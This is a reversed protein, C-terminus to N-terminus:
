TRGRGKRRRRAVIGLAGLGALALAYAQPEPVPATVGLLVNDIEASRNQHGLFSIRVTGDAVLPGLGPVVITSTPVSATIVAPAGGPLLSSFSGGSSFLVDYTLRNGSQTGLKFYDFQFDMVTGAPLGPIDQLLTDKNDNFLAHTGAITVNIGAAAWHNLGDDFSGNRVANAASTAACAGALVAGLAGRQMLGKRM